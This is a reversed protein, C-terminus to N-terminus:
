DAKVFRMNIFVFYGNEDIPNIWKDVKEDFVEGEIEPDLWLEGDRIKWPMAKDIIMGDMVKIYGMKIAEDIDEKSTEEPFPMLMYLKGDDCIKIQTGVVAKRSKMEDKIEDEDMEDAYLIPSNLYEEASLFNVKDEGLEGISHFVWKGVYSM